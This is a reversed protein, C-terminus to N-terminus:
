KVNQGRALGAAGSSDCLVPGLKSLPDLLHFITAGFDVAGRLDQLFFEFDSRDISFSPCPRIARPDIKEEDRRRIPALHKDFQVFPRRTSLNGFEALDFGVLHNRTEKRGSNSELSETSRLGDMSALHM